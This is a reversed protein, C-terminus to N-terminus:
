IDRFSNSDARSSAAAKPVRARDAPSFGLKAANARLTQHAQSLFRLLPNAIEGQATRVTENGRLAVTYRRVDSYAQAYGALASLDM